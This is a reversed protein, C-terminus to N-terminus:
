SSLVNKSSVVLSLIKRRIDPLNLGYILPNLLPPIVIFELSIMLAIASLIKGPEYRSLAIDSFTALSYTVFNVIHPLCTQLAKGRIESTGRHCVILIRIYTFLIFGAPLFITTVTVFFGLINNSVTTVCSLRVISWNSCYVRPIQSGCLPLRISFYIVLVMWFISWSFASLILLFTRKQTMINHYQLPECIAVYRDYAMVTLVTFESIAYTYIVFIQTFCAPRSISHSKSLLDVSLRPFLASSGYLSNFLLCSILLYMPEHLSKEKFVVLIISLNFLIILLYVVVALLFYIIRVNEYGKFLTFYFHSPTTENEM